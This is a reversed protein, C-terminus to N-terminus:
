ASAYRRLVALERELVDREDFRATAIQRAADGMRARQAPDSLVRDIAARLAEVDRPAVLLGTEEPVVLERCAPIDSAIVPLGSAMAEIVSRPLGERYTPLVFLDSAAALRHADARYGVFKWRQGLATVVPHERLEREIGTRDSPLARGAVVFWLRERDRLALAASALELLGKERVIRAVTLAVVADPPIGLEARVAKRTAPSPKFRGTAVGNGIVTTDEVRAIGLSVARKADGAAQSFFVTTWRALAKEIALYARETVSLAESEFPLGHFTHIITPVGALVAAARGVLGGAPTHTHVVTPRTRRLELALVAIARVLRLPSRARTMPVPLYEFGAERLAAAGPGDACAFGVKWGENRCAEMLPRLLHFATFDVACVQVIRLSSSRLMSRHAPDGADDGIVRARPRVREHPAHKARDLVAPRVVLAQYCSSRRAETSPAQRDDIDLATM